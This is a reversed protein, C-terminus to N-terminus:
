VIKRMLKKSSKVAKKGNLRRQVMEASSPLPLSPKKASRLVSSKNQSEVQAAITKSTEETSASTTSAMSRAYYTKVDDEYCIGQTRLTSAIEDALPYNKAVKAEDRSRLLGEIAEEDIKRDSAKPHRLRDM